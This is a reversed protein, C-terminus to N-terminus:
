LKFRLLAFANTSQTLQPVSLYAKCTQLAIGMFSGFVYADTKQCLASCHTVWLGLRMAM